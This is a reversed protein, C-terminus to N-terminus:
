TLHWWDFLNIWWKNLHLCSSVTVSFLFLCSLFFGLLCDPYLWLLYDDGHIWHHGTPRNTQLEQTRWHHPDGQWKNACGKILHKPLSNGLCHCTSWTGGTVHMHKKRLGPELLSPLPDTDLYMKWWSTGARWSREFSTEQPQKNRTQNTNSQGVLLNLQASFLSQQGALLDQLLNLFLSQPLQRSICDWVCLFCFKWVHHGHLASAKQVKWMLFDTSYPKLLIEM